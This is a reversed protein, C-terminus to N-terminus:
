GDRIVDELREFGYRQPARSTVVDRGQLKGEVLYEKALRAQAWNIVRDMIPTAVHALEAIGRTVALGYPVDEALYRAHFDPVFGGEIPRVPARLGAYGRNTLFCSQLSSTDSIADEYSRCLWEALSCVASLDLDPFHEELGARVTQVEDSLDQLIDATAADIGQYFLPAEAYPHGNWGRFLGYMVGPHILQGTGALTLSLFSNIPRLHVGLLDALLTAVEEARQPPWTALDVEAKTGLIAVQQGYQQIRCAWPLTQLGLLTVGTGRTGLVRTASWHFGGRAPLAGVWVGADLHPAIDNLTFEHAFAPLALLVLRSGPVVIRPDASIQHPQGVLTGGRTVVSIGGQAAVGQRWRQAEDGYPVYVNVRLGARAALLGALTHAANGGGCITIQM